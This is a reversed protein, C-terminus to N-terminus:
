RGGRRTLSNAPLLAKPNCVVEQDTYAPNFSDKVIWSAQLLPHQMVSRFEQYLPHTPLHVARGAYDESTYTGWNRLATVSAWASRHNRAMRLFPVLERFNNAQVTFFVGLKLRPNADQLHNVFDVNRWLKEWSAQRNAHYTEPTAADVSIGIEAVKANNPGMADWHERDLLLGNTHLFLDLAPHQPLEHLHQLLHWYVPSAFPDGAGTVYLRRTKLLVNSELVKEHIRRVTSEDVFAASHTVRCSPCTLNCTQDYDLKLVHVWTSDVHTPMREVVPGGPGPLYPCATCHDFTGRCVSSRIDRAPKDLWIKNLDDHLVNGLPKPLWGECCCYVSGDSKIEMRTFPNPCYM